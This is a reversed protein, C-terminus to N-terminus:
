EEIVREALDKEIEGLTIACGGTAILDCGFLFAGIGCAIKCGTSQCNIMGAVCLTTGAADIIARTTLITKTASDM